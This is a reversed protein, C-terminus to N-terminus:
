QSDRLRQGCTKNSLTVRTYTYRYAAELLLLQSGHMVVYVLITMMLDGFPQTVFSADFTGCCSVVGSNGTFLM